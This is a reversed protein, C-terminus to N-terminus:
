QVGRARRIKDNLDWTYSIISGSAALQRKDKSRAWQFYGSGETDSGDIADSLDPMAAHLGASGFGKQAGALVAQELLLMRIRQFNDTRMSITVQSCLINGTSLTGAGTLAGGAVPNWVSGVRNRLLWSPALVDTHFVPRLANWFTQACVSPILTALGDRDWLYYGDVSLISPSAQCYTRLEHTLTPVTIQLELRYDATLPQPSM